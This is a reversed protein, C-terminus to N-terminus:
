KVKLIFDVAEQSSYGGKITKDIVEVRKLASYADNVDSVIENNNSLQIPKELKHLLPQTATCLVITCNLYRSLYNCVENFLTSCHIPVSQAEDFIIVSNMLSQLKRLDQSSSSFFINLFQVVTTFIIPHEWRSSLVKVHEEDEYEDNTKIEEIVNSHFELLENNCKLTERVVKANQELISTYPAVYIIKTKNNIKAHNLAFNLSSLTKGGGTPVTLTYIGTKNNAFNYCDLAIENRKNFVLQQFASNAKSEKFSEMKINLNKIYSILYNQISDEVLVDKVLGFKFSDLWDSDILISYLIKILLHKAFYYSQATKYDKNFKILYNKIEIVAKSFLESIDFEEFLCEFEKKVSLYDNFKNKCIRKLLPINFHDDVSNPLGGHHYCIILSIIEATIKDFVDSSEESPIMDYIYKAGYMGHDVKAENDSNIYLQFDDSLKGMDHLLGALFTVNGLNLLTGRNRSLNAVNLLHCKVSQTKGDKSKRAIKM